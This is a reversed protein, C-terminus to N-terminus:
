VGFSFLSIESFAAPHTPCSIFQSISRQRLMDYSPRPIPATQQLQPCHALVTVEHQGITIEGLSLGSYTPVTEMQKNLPLAESPQVSQGEAETKLPPFFGGVPGSRKM